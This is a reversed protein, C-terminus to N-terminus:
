KIIIYILFATFIILMIWGNTKESTSSKDSVGLAWTSLVGGILGGVHAALDIGEAMFGIALNLLIIPIIQSQLANGLYVRYHYGFYLLAGLLGFIAGSAGASVISIDNLVMSLLNGLIMSIFYILIFKIKGLYSEVQPGLVYLAYMNMIIHVLGIHLFGSTIIRFYEGALVYGKNLAGFRMLTNIDESGNGMVYMLIFLIINIAMISYTIYPTKKSFIKEVKQSEKANSINIDNTIKMFLEFGKEKFDTDKIINPFETKITENKDLEEINNIELCLIHKDDYKKLDVNDGLNLFISITDLNFSFTKRKINKLISKTRYLDYNLQEDNHIYNTVIRIIQHDKKLNELWIENEAGHLIIPNYGEETIFYHLLKMVIEDSIQLTM